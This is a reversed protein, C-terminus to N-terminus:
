SFATSMLVISFYLKDKPQQFHDLTQIVQSADIIMSSKDAPQSSCQSNPM